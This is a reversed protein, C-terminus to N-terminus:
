FRHGGGGHCRRNALYRGILWGVIYAASGGSVHDLADENLEGDADGLHFRDPTVTIGAEAFLAIVEEDSQANVIKEELEKTIQINNM